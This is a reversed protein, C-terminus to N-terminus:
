FALEYEKLSCHIGEEEWETGETGRDDISAAPSMEYLWFMFCTLFLSM